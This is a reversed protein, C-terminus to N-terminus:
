FTILIITVLPIKSDLPLMLIALISYMSPLFFFPANLLTGEKLVVKEM